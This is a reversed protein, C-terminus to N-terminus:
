RETACFEFDKKVKYTKTHGRNIARCADFRYQIELQTNAFMVESATAIAETIPHGM